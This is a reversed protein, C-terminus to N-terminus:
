WWDCGSGGGSVLGALSTAAADGVETNCLSLCALRRCATLWAVGADSVDTDSLDLVELSTLHRFAQPPLTAPAPTVHASHLMLCKVLFLLQLAAHAEV